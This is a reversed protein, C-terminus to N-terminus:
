RGSRMSTFRRLVQRAEPLRFIWAGACYVTMGSVVAAFLALVNELLSGHHMRGNVSWATAGTACSLFLVKVFPFLLKLWPLDISHKKSLGFLLVAGNLLAALSSALAIGAVGIMPMFYLAMLIFATLSVVGAWLPTMMDKHAHCGKTLVIDVAWPVMGVSYALLPGTTLAVSAESFRGTHFLVEIIPKSLALIGLAAPTIFFFVASLGRELTAALEKKEGGSAQRSLSPLIVTSISVAFLGFALETIRNAYYLASVAGEGLTSALATGVLILLQGAGAGLVGPGMLRFVQRIHKDKISFAPRLSMGSKKLLPLQLVFQLAGGVLVGAALVHTPSKSSYGWFIAAVIISLNLFAPTLAPFAFVGRCNLIGMAVAALSVLTIYPFLIATLEKTLAFIEPAKVAYDWAMARVILPAALSGAIGLVVLFLGFVYLFRRAFLWAMEPGDEKFSYSLVPVLAATMAGEAVFRRFTNPIRFAIYFADALYSTGLLSALVRDRVYGLIRSVLTMTAVNVTHGLLREEGEGM